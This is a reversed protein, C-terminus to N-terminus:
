ASSPTMCNVGICAAILHQPGYSSAGKASREKDSRAARPLQDHDFCIRRWSSPVFSLSSAMFSTLPTAPLGLRQLM